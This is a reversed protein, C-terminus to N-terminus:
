DFGWVLGGRQYADDRLRGEQVRIEYEKLPGDEPEAAAPKNKTADEANTADGARVTALGRGRLLQARIAVLQPSSVGCGAVSDSSPAQRWRTNGAHVAKRRDTSYPQERAAASQLTVAPRVGRPSSSRLAGPLCDACLKISSRSMPTPIASRDRRWSISYAPTRAVNPATLHTVSALYHKRSNHEAPPHFTDPAFRAGSGLIHGGSFYGALFAQTFGRPKNICCPLCGLIQSIEIENRLCFLDARQMLIM